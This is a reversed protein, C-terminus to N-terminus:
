CGSRTASGEAPTWGRNGSGLRVEFSGSCDLVGGKRLRSAVVGAFSASGSSRLQLAYSGAGRITVEEFRAGNIAKGIFHIAELTSDVIEVDRVHIAADMPADLAYFWLAGVGFRWNPDFSGSRVILNDAIEIRGSAPVADFRNGVHIGGGQTLSDAVINGTVSIDHGGYIAIGNALIPAVITNNRFVIDHNAQRHSWSALGDDGSNRVLSHEVLAHIVGRHFNLGDATNDLVRLRRIAIGAMPGDFWLGVKHHQIWLNEILSGGGMAGGIGALKAKDDRERVDGILSFDRLTVATSGRPAKRGYIGVGRGRLTSHWPGAGVITVRDVVLHGDARFTGPPIWVPVSRRRAARVANRLARLSDRRGTRDAGFDEISLAGAPRPAPAPVLEFDALDVLYWPAEDDRAVELRVKTGPPLTRGFHLRAEDYFHHPKGDSPRNSFPYEGYYWGYRSTTALSGLRVGGSTVSLTSELGSGDASDPIAYRVTLANAAKGLTFEVFRGAGKLLVARRGSAEAALSTFTRDPGIGEGNTFANEAEQEEFPLRAGRAGVDIQPLAAVTGAAAAAAAVTPVGAIAAGCCAAALRASTRLQRPARMTRMAPSIPPM